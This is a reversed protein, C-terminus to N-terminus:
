LFHVSIVNSLVKFYGKAAIVADLRPYSAVLKAVQIQHTERMKRLDEGARDLQIPLM